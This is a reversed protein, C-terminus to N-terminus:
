GYIAIIIQIHTGIIYNPEYGDVLGPRGTKISNM